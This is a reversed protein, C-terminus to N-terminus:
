RSIPSQKPEAPQSTQREELYDSQNFIGVKKLTYADKLTQNKGEWSFLLKSNPQKHHKLSVVEEHLPQSEELKQKFVESNYGHKGILHDLEIGAESLKMQKKILEMERGIEGTQKKGDDDVRTITTRAQIDTRFGKTRLETHLKEAFSDELKNGKGAFCAVVSIKLGLTDGPHVHNSFIDAIQQYSITDDESKGQLYNLGTYHHGILYVRSNEDLDRLAEYYDDSAELEPDMEIIYHPKDPHTAEWKKALKDATEQQGIHLIIQRSYNTKYKM